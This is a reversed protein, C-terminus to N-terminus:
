FLLLSKMWYILIFSFYVTIIVIAMNNDDNVTITLEDKGRTLPWGSLCRSGTQPDGTCSDCYRANAEEIPIAIVAFVASIAILATTLSTRRNTKISEFYTLDLGQVKLGPITSTPSVNLAHTM